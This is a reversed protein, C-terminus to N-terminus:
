VNTESQLMVLESHGNKADDWDYPEFAHLQEPEGIAQVTFLFRRFYSTRIRDRHDFHAWGGLAQRAPVAIDGVSKVLEASRSHQFGLFRCGLRGGDMEIDLSITRMRVEIDLGNEVTMLVAIMLSSPGYYSVQSQQADIKTQVRSAPITAALEKLQLVFRDRLRRPWTHARLAYLVCLMGVALLIWDLRTMDDIVSNWIDLWSQGDDIYGPISYLHLLPKIWTGLGGMGFATQKRM